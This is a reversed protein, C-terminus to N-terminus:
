PRLLNINHRYIDIISDSSGNDKFISSGAVLIDAGHDLITNVNDLSVGGDIEVLIDPYRKKIQDIKSLVSPIFKQGGFGPNVSMVLVFDLVPFLPEIVSWPVGPNLAIGAKVGSEQIANLLRYSHPEADPHFSIWSAGAEIFWPVVQSPHSVMLHVDLPLRTIKSIETVHMPGFTLNPVYHGDMVDIHLLDAGAMELSIIDEKMTLLNSALLSPAILPSSKM